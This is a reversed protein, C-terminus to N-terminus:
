GQKQPQRRSPVKIHKASLRPAPPAPPAEAAALPRRADDLQQLIQKAIPLFKEGDPMLRAPVGDDLLMKGGLWRELKQVYKTVTGQHVKMEEAAATRKGSEAVQVFAELWVLSLGEFKAM